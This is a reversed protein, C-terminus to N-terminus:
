LGCKQANFCLIDADSTPRALSEDKKARPVICLSRIQTSTLQGFNPHSGEGRTGLDTV